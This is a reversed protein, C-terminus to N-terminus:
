AAQRRSAVAATEAAIEPVPALRGTAQLTGTAGKLAGDVLELGLFRAREFPGPMALGAARAEAFGFRAYYPADGVLLVAAHGLDAARALAARMLRGGFGEGQLSPDVALPGLLLAPRGCGTAVEWLRVTGVLKEGSVAALALGRAPLCGERLRQSTKLFRIPGFCADLLRERAAVDAAIEDRIQIM